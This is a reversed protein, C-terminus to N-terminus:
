SSIAAPEVLDMLLSDHYSGDAAREHARLVGVPEFGAKRYAAIANENDTRPDITFRHHGHEDRLWAIVLRLAAPGIGRGQVATALSIDLSASKYSLLMEESTLLVGAFGGDVEIAWMLEGPDPELFLSGDPPEDYVAWWRAVAPEALMEIVAPRDDPVLARLLLGHERDEL